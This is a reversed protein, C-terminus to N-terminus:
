AGALRASSAVFARRCQLVANLRGIDSDDGDAPRCTRAEEDLFAGTVAYRGPTLGPKLGYVIPPAVFRCSGGALWSAGVVFEDAASDCTLDGVITIQRHGYCVPLGDTLMAPTLTTADIPSAACDYAQPALLRQGEPSRFPSWGIPTDIGLQSTALLYWEVGDVVVPGHLVVLSTGKRFGMLPHTSPDPDGTDFRFPPGGPTASVPVVPVRGAVFSDVAFTADINPDIPPLWPYWASAPAVL